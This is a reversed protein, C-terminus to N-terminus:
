EAHLELHSIVSDPRVFQYNIKENERVQRLGELLIKDGEKLGSGVVFLHQLEAAIIIERSRVVSDKDVVYV